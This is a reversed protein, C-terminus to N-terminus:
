HGQYTSRTLVTSTESVISITGRLQFTLDFIATGVSTADREPSYAHFKVLGKAECLGDNSCDASLGNPDLTYLREPWRDLFTTKDAMVDAKPMPKGFYTITPSYVRDLYAIAKSPPLSSSTFFEKAASLAAAMPTDSTSSSQAVPAAPAIREPQGGWVVTAYHAGTKVMSDYPLVSAEYLRNLEANAAGHAYPGLSVVYWGGSDSTFVFTNPAHKAIDVAVQTADALNNRSAAQIWEGYSAWDNQIAPPTPIPQPPPALLAVANKDTQDTGGFPTVELGIMQADAFSLWRIDNPQAATMYRVASLSLGLENLYAGVVANAVSDATEQGEISAAHFGIKAGAEMFRTKGALWALACASACEFGNAVLTDYGKLRITKGMETAAYINGGPSNFLVVAQPSAQLAVDVFLKEDGFLIEGEVLIMAFPYAAERKVEITASQAPLSGIGLLLGTFILKWASRGM